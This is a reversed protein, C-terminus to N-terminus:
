KDDAALEEATLYWGKWEHFHCECTQYNRQYFVTLNFNVFHDSFPLLEHLWIMESCECIFINSEPYHEWKYDKNSESARNNTASSINMWVWMRLCRQKLCCPHNKLIAQQFSSMGRSARSSCMKSTARSFWYHALANAEMMTDPCPLLLLM